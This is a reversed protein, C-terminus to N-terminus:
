PEAAVAGEAILAEIDAATRGTDALVTRTDAGLQRPATRVSGPTRSLRVPVGLMRRGEVETIM